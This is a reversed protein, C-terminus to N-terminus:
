KGHLVLQMAFSRCKSCWWDGILRHWWHQNNTTTANAVSVKLLLLLVFFFLWNILNSFKCDNLVFLHYTYHNSSHYTLMLDRSFSLSLIFFQQIHKLKSRIRDHWVYQSFFSLAKQNWGNPFSFCFRYIQQRVCFLLYCIRVSNYSRNRQLTSYSAYLLIDSECLISGSECNGLPAISDYETQTCTHACQAYSYKLPTETHHDNLSYWYLSVNIRLLLWIYGSFSLSLFITHGNRIAFKATQRKAAIDCTLVVLGDNAQWAFWIEEFRHRRFPKVM